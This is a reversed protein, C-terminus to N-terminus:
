KFNILGAKSKTFYISIKYNEKANDKNKCLFNLM